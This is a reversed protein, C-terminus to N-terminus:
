EGRSDPTDLRRLGELMIPHPARGDNAWRYVSRESVRAKEAIERITMRELLRNILDSAESARTQLAKRKSPTRVAM